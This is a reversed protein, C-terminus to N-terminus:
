IAGGLRVRRALCIGGIPLLWWWRLDAASGELRERRALRLLRYEATVDSLEQDSMADPHLGFAPAAFGSSRLVELALRNRDPRGSVDSVEVIWRGRPLWAEVRPAAMLNRYWDSGSGFAALCYLAGDVEAYNVPSRFERGSRRGVHQLVLIQGATSPFWGFVPGLGLRWLLVVFRNLRRFERRLREAVPPRQFWAYRSDVGPRTM